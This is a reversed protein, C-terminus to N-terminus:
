RLLRAPQRMHIDPYQDLRCHGRAIYGLLRSVNRASVGSAAQKEAPVNAATLLLCVADELPLGELSESGITQHTHCDPNRSTMLVIGRNGPSFDIDYDQAPDDTSGIILLRLHGVEAIIQVAEPLNSVIQGMQKVINIYAKEAM